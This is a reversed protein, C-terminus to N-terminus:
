KKKKEKQGMSKLLVLLIKSSPEYDNVKLKWGRSRENLHAFTISSKLFM